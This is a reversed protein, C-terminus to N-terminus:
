LENKLRKSKSIVLRIKDAYNKMANNSYTKLNLRFKFDDNDFRPIIHFHFHFVTQGAATGNNAFINFGDPKLSESLADTLFQTVIILKELETKPVDLFNQYHYKPIILTHGYNVPCIDLFSIIEDTEFLIEAYAKRAIIDCFICNM